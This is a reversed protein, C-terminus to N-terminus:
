LHFVEDKVTSNMSARLDTRCTYNALLDHLSM